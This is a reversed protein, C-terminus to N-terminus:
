CVVAACPGTRDIAMSHSKVAAPYEMRDHSRTQRRSPRVALNIAAGRLRLLSEDGTTAVRLEDVGSKVRTLPRACRATLQDKATFRDLHHDGAACARIADRVVGDAQREVLPISLVLRARKHTRHLVFLERARPRAVPGLPSRPRVPTAGVELRSSGSAASSAVAALCLRSRPALAPGM